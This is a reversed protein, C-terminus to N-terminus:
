RRITFHGIPWRSCRLRGLPELTEHRSLEHSSPANQHGNPLTDVEWLRTGLVSGAGTWSDLGICRMKDSRVADHGQVTRLVDDHSVACVECQAQTVILDPRLSALREADINYIPEGAAVRQTVQRDIETSSANAAIHTYTVRPKGAVEPPFDCEHSVAVVKDGLGLGYLIETASALLSAIRQPKM